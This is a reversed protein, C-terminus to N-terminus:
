LACGTASVLAPTGLINRAEVIVTNLDALAPVNGMNLLEKQKEIVLALFQMSHVIGQMRDKLPLNELDYQAIHEAHDACRMSADAAVNVNKVNNSIQFCIAESVLSLYRIAQMSIRRDNM